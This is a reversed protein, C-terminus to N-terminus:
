DPLSYPLALQEAELTRAGPVAQPLPERAEHEGAVLSTVALFECRGDARPAADVVKFTRGDPLEGADARQLQAAARTVFRQLRRKVRGRYHARAIVEQGTYCGKDFAIAQLADLNLMQAVFQESTAAYVQPEGAAVVLRQWDEPRAPALDELASPTVSMGPRAPVLLLWRHPQEAVCVAIAEDLRAVGHLSAPWAATPQAGAAPAIVGHIHWHASEDSLQVKSRLIFKALRSVLAAALERPVIALLEQDCQVLRLLAIVRGHPNHYGALLAREARLLAVDNSLQGQLFAVRDAGRVRLVGLSELSVSQHVNGM